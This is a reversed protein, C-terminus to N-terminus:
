ASVRTPLKSRKNVIEKQGRLTTTKRPSDGKRQRSTRKGTKPSSPLKNIFPVDKSTKSGYKPGHYSKTQIKSIFPQLANKRKTKLLKDSNIIDPQIVTTKNASHKTNETPKGEGNLVGGSLNAVMVRLETLTHGQFNVDDQLKDLKKEFHKFSSVIRQLTDMPRSRQLSM